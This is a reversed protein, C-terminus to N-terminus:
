ADVHTKSKDKSQYVTKDTYPCKFRKLSVKDLKIKCGDEEEFWVLCTSNGSCEVGIAFTILDHRAEADSWFLEALFGSGGVDTPNGEGTNWSVNGMDRLKWGCLCYNGELSVITRGDKLTAFLRYRACKHLWKPHVENSLM